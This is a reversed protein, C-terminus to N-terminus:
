YRAARRLRQAEDNPRFLDDRKVNLAKAIEGLELNTPEFITSGTVIGKVRGPSLSTREALTEYSLGRLAMEADVVREAADAKAFPNAQPMRVTNRDHHEKLAVNKVADSPM